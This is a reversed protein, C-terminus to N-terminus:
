GRLAIGWQKQIADVVKLQCADVEADTLTRAADPHSQAKPDRYMLRFAIARCDRAVGEGEFLDFPEVSECLDGAAGAMVKVIDGAPLERPVEFSVDRIIGPVRIIPRYRPRRRELTELAALDLEILQAEEGLDFADVLEPHLPGFWGVRRGSVVLDAAGRPHLHQTHPQDSARVVTVPRRLFREIIELAMGKADFVDIPDPKKLWASRPGAMLAAFRPVELPLQGVDEAVRPRASDAIETQQTDSALFISGIAFL